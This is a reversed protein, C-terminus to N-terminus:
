GFMKSAMKKEKQKQKKLQLEIREGLKQIAKDNEALKKAQTIDKKADDWRKKEYFVSARRYYAKASTDDLSLAENCVRLAQDVNDMKTYALALNLNLTVKLATVEKVDDPALDVFKACHTLAKTYRAAAFRWNGDKFLENAEEKNKMVIEMRRKKPLRRNDHDEEDEEGNKELQAKKAEEEMEKEKADQEKQIAAYYSACKEKTSTEMENRKAEMQERTANDCEESFLWDDLGNLYDDLNPLLAGHKGHKASRLELVQAEMHNRIDAKATEEADLTAMTVEAQRLQQRRELVQASPQQEVSINSSEEEALLAAGLAASTDDLSRSLTQENGVVTQIVAQVWPIRCGGGLVEVADVTQDALTSQILETLAQADPDCLESLLTRTASLTIDADNINEVTVSGEPLQSLLHKLKHTGALLRQGARSKPKVDKLQTMTSQFHHWLRVDVSAAGLSSHSKAALVQFSPKTSKDEAQEEKTGFQVVSVSTQAHGMDIMLVTKNAQPFKRQYASAYAMPSEVIRADLGAAFAADLLQERSTTTNDPSISLMYQVDTADSQMRQLTGLVSLRIKGLLMALVASASFQTNSDGNYDVTVVTTDNDTQQTQFTYFNSLLDDKEKLSLLRNLHIICNSGKQNATEGMHRLKGSFSVATPTTHLGAESRVIECSLSSGLVVKTSETGVDIGVTVKMKKDDNNNSNSM